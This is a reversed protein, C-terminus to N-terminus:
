PTAIAEPASEWLREIDYFQRTAPLMIHVVADGLDVLVWEAKDDGEVGIPRIQNAKCREVVNDALSKVHRNSTGSAIIMFDTVSTLGRVDLVKIDNGKMEEIADVVLDRLQESGM